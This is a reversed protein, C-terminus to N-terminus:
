QTAECRFFEFSDCVCGPAGGICSCDPGCSCNVGAFVPECDTRAVCAAEDSLEGCTEEDAPLCLAVSKDCNTGLDCEKEEACVKTAACAGHVTCYEEAGCAAHNSCTQSSEPARCTGATCVQGESCDADLKCDLKAPSESVRPVECDEGHVDGEYTEIRCGTVSLVCVLFTLCRKMM